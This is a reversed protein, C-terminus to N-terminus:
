KRRARRGCADRRVPRSAPRTRYAVGTERVVRAPEGAEPPVDFVKRLNVNLGPFASSRLKDGKTYTGMLRYTAGDLVFIEVLVANPIALWVEKVGTRAYLSMKRLRDHMETSPSLVEVVLTPAGEIHTPKVKSRECVVVIDPQVVDKVSLKVDVPSVFVECKKGASHRHLAASLRLVARQHEVGPAPSMDFAEGGVIEWRKDDNWTVYDNWAYGTRKRATEGAM